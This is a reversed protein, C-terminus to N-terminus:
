PAAAGHLLALVKSLLVEKNVPKVVFDSAGAKLSELVVDKDSKGTVM